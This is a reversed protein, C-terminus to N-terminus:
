GFRVTDIRTPPALLMLTLARRRALAISPLTQALRDRRCDVRMRIHLGNRLIPWNVTKESDFHFCENGADGALIARKERLEQQIDQSYRALYEKTGDTSAGDVFFHKVRDHVSKTSALCDEITEISNRTATVLAIM